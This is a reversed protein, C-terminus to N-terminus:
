ELKFFELIDLCRQKIITGHYLSQVGAYSIHFHGNYWYEPQLQEIIAKINNDEERLDDILRKDSDTRRKLQKSDLGPPRLGTHALVGHIQGTDRLHYILHRSLCTREWSFYTSDTKLINRDISVAGGFIFYNKNNISVISNDELHIINPWKENLYKIDETGFKPTTNEKSFLNTYNITWHSPNDHNGRVLYLKNNRFALQKSIYDYFKRPNEKRFGVECDGLIIISSNRIDNKKCLQIFTEKQYHMDGCLWVEGEIYYNIKM